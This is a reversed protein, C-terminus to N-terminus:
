DRGLVDEAMEKELWGIYDGAIWIDIKGRENESTQIKKGAVIARTLQGAIASTRIKRPPRSMYSRPRRPM